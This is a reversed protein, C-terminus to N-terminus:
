DSGVKEVEGETENLLSPLSFFSAYGCLMDEFDSPLMKNIHSEKLKTGSEDLTGTRIALRKFIQSVKRFSVDSITSAFLMAKIEDPKPIQQEKEEADEDKEKGPSLRGASVMANMIIQKFDSSEDFSDMSPPDFSIEGTEKFDAEDSKRKTYRLLRRLKYRYPEEIDM